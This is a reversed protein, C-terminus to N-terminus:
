FLGFRKKKRLYFTVTINTAANNSLTTAGQWHRDRKELAWGKSILFAAVQGAYAEGATFATEVAELAHL